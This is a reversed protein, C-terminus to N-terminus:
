LDVVHIYACLYMWCCRWVGNVCMCMSCYNAMHRYHMRVFAYVSHWLVNTLVSWLGYTTLYLTHLPILVAVLLIPAGTLTSTLRVDPLARGSSLSYTKVDNSTSIQMMPYLPLCRAPLM